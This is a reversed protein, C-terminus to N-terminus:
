QPYSSSSDPPYEEGFKNKHPVSPAAAPMQVPGEDNNDGAVHIQKTLTNLQSPEIGERWVHLVYDGPVVDNLQVTGDGKIETYFRTGVAIIVAAMQSHINCFIYSAGEHDFRVTRTSGAEYLGLDFRKGNFQSFVNHFFPDRNPFEVVSGLPVVLLNPRFTKDKQEM